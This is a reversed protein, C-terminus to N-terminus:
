PVQQIEDKMIKISIDLLKEVDYQKANATDVLYGKMGQKENLIYYVRTIFDNIIAQIANLNPLPERPNTTVLIISNSTQM